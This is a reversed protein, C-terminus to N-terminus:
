APTKKRLVTILCGNHWDSHRGLPIAHTEDHTTRVEIALLIELDHDQISQWTGNRVPMWNWDDVIFVFQDALADIAVGLSDRHDEYTHPGDFLYINFPGMPRYDVARFDEFLVSLRTDVSSCRGVNSFFAGVPGGFESWNDVAVARVRNGAIAACLTSGAWSGIELYAPDKLLRVLNNAFMRYKRGSMGEIELVDPPLRAVGERAAAFAVHVAAVLDVSEGVRVAGDTSASLGPKQLVTVLPDRVSLSDQTM